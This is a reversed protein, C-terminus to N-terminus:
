LDAANLAGARRGRPSRPSRRVSRTMTRAALLEALGSTDLALRGASGGDRGSERDRRGHHEPAITFSSERNHSRPRRFAGNQSDRDTRGGATELFEESATYPYHDRRWSGRREAPSAGIQINLHLRMKRRV